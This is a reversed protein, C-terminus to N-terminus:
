LAGDGGGKPNAEPKGAHNTPDEKWAKIAANVAIQLANHQQLKTKVLEEHKAPNCRECGLNEKPVMPM